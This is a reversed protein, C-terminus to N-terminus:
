AFRRARGGDLWNSLHGTWVRRVLWRPVNDGANEDAHEDARAGEAPM